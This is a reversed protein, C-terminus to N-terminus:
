FSCGVTLMAVNRFRGGLYEPEDLLSQFQESLKIYPAIGSFETWTYSFEIGAGARAATDFEFQRNLYDDFSKLKSAGGATYGDQKPTGLGGTYNLRLTVGLMSLGFSFNREGSLLANYTVYNHNRYIPFVTTKQLRCFADAEAHLVWDPRFVGSGKYLTYALSADIDHRTLSLNKGNYIVETPMGDEVKYSYSNTFNLLMRYAANLEVRHLANAAPLDLTGNYVAEPGNFECFVVSTSSRTGFYGTRWQGSLQNYLKTNSGSVLQVSIGYWDNAMPRTNTVSIYGIDGDFDEVTGIFGGQDVNIYYQRDVTGYLKAKIQELSHRYLLNVGFGLSGSPSYWFGPAVSLDVLDNQFRPDKHKTRDKANYDLKVGIAWADSFAYSLGGSLSYSERQKVGVAASDEELFNVPSGLPDLLVQAGMNQGLFFEYYVKGSFVLKDSVRKFSETGAGAAWSDNSGDLPVVAGNDKRFSLCAKSIGGEGFVSLSSANSFSLVPNIEKAYEYNRVGEQGVASVALCLFSLCLAPIRFRNM